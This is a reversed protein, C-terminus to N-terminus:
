GDGWRLTNWRHGNHEWAYTPQGCDPCPQGDQTGYSLLHTRACGACRFTVPPQDPPPPPQGLEPNDHTTM